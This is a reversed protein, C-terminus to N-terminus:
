HTKRRFVILDVKRLKRCAQFIDMLEAASEDNGIATYAELKTCRKIHAAASETLGQCGQIDISKVSRFCKSLIADLDADKIYECNNLSITELKDLRGDLALSAVAERISEREVATMNNYGRPLHLSALHIGRKLIWNLAAAGLARHTHADDEQYPYPDTLM